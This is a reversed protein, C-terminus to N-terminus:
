FLATYPCRHQNLGQGRRELHLLSQEFQSFMGTPQVASSPVINEAQQNILALPSPDLQHTDADLLLSRMFPSHERISPINRHRYREHVSINSQEDLSTM